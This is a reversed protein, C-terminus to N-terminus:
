FPIDDPNIDDAPYQEQPYSQGIPKDQKNKLENFLWVVQKELKDIREEPKPARKQEFNLYKKGNYEKETVAIEVEDGTKWDKTEVSGFGSLFRDGYRDTKISLSTYPKGTRPSTKQESRFYTLKVKEM